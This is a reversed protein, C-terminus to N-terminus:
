NTNNYLEQCISSAKSAEIPKGNQRSESMILQICHNTPHTTEYKVGRTILFTIIGTILATFICSLAIKYYM